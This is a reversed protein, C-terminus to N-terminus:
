AGPGRCLERSMGRSLSIRELGSRRIGQHTAVKGIVRGEARRVTLRDMTTWKLLRSKASSVAEQGGGASSAPGSPHLCSYQHCSTTTAAPVQAFRSDAPHRLYECAKVLSCCM